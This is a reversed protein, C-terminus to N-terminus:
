KIIERGVTLVRTESGHLVTVTQAAVDIRLIKVQGWNTSLIDDVKKDQFIVGDVEITCTTVGNVTNISLAKMSHRISSTSSTSSSSTSSSGPTGTTSTTSSSSGGGGSTPTTGSGSSSTVAQQIFPDKAEFTSLLDLVVAETTTTTTAPLPTATTSTASPPTAKSGCGLALLMVSAVALLMAAFLRIQRNKRM